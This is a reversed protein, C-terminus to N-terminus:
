RGVVADLLASSPMQNGSSVHGRLVTLASVLLAIEPPPVEAGRHWAPMAGLTQSVFSRTM